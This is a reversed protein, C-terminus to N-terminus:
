RAWLTGNARIPSTPVSFSCGTPERSGLMTGTVTVPEGSVSVAPSNANLSVRATTSPDAAAPPAGVTCSLSFLGLLLALLAATGVGSPRSWISGPRRSSADSM